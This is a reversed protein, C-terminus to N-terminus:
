RVRRIRRLAPPSCPSVRVSAYLLSGDLRYSGTYTPTPDGRLIEGDRLVGMGDGHGPGAIFRAHWLGDLKIPGELKFFLKELWHAYERERLACAIGRWIAQTWEYPSFWWM